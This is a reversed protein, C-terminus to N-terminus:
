RRFLWGALWKTVRPMIVYTMLSVQLGVILVTRVFPPANPFLARLLPGLGTVLCLVLVFIVMAMKHASPSVPAAAGPAQFWFELGELRRIDVDGDVADVPLRASWQRRLESEEWARLNQYSDFRVISVFERAVNGEAPRITSVGLYGAVGRSAEQLGALWTEYEAERGAKVKRRLVLTVPGTMLGMMLGGTMSKSEPSATNSLM